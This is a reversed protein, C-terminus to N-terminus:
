LILLELCFIKEFENKKANTAFAEIDWTHTYIISTHTHAHTHTQAHMSLSIVTNIHICLCCHKMFNMPKLPVTKTIIWERMIKNQNEIMFILFALRYTHIITSTTSMPVLIPSSYWTSETIHLLSCYIGFTSYYHDDGLANLFMYM